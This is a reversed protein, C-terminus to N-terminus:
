HIRAIKKLFSFWKYSRCEACQIMKCFVLIKIASKGYRELMSIPHRLCKVTMRHLFKDDSICSINEYLNINWSQIMGEQIFKAFILYEKNNQVKSESVVYKANNFMDLLHSTKKSKGMMSDERLVYYYINDNILLVNNSYQFYLIIFAIDEGYSIGQPFKINNNKIINTSFVKNWIEYGYKCDLLDKQFDSWRSENEKSIIAENQAYCKESDNFVKTFSYFFTDTTPNKKINSLINYIANKEIRDDSDVFWCYKGKAKEIGTNRAMSIKGNKEHKISHIQSYKKEYKEYIEASNDPSCDDVILVEVEDCLQSVISDMCRALYPEVNYVPVIISLLVDQNM